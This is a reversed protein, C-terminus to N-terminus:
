IAVKKKEESLEKYYLYEDGMIERTLRGLQFLANRLIAVYKDRVKKSKYWNNQRFICDPKDRFYNGIYVMSVRYPYPALETETVKEIKFIDM